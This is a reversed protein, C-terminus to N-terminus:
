ASASSRAIRSNPSSRDSPRTTARIVWPTSAIRRSRIASPSRASAWAVSTGGSRDVRREQLRLGPVLTRPARYPLAPEGITQGAVVLSDAGVSPGPGLLSYPEVQQPPADNQHLAQIGDAAQSNGLFLPDSCKRRSVQGSDADPRNPVPGRVRSRRGERHHRRAAPSRERPSQPPRPRGPPATGGPVAAGSAHGPQPRAAARARASSPSRHNRTSAWRPSPAAERGPAAPWRAARRPM